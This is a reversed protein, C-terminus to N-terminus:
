SKGGLLEAHADLEKCILCACDVLKRKKLLAAHSTRLVALQREYAMLQGRLTSVADIMAAKSVGVQCVYTVAYQEAAVADTSTCDDYTVSLEPLANAAPAAACEDCFFGGRFPPSSMRGCKNECPIEIGRKEEPQGAPATPAAPEFVKCACGEEGCEEIGGGRFWHLGAIHGCECTQNMNTPM